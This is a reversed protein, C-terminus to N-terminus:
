SAERDPCNLWAQYSRKYDFMGAMGARCIRNIVPPDTDSTGPVCDCCYRAHFRLGAYKRVAIQRLEAKRTLPARDLDWKLQALANFSIEEDAEISRSTKSLVM